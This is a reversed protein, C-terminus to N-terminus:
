ITGIGMCRANLSRKESCSGIGVQCNDTPPGTRGISIFQTSTGVSNDSWIDEEETTEHNLREDGHCFNVFM